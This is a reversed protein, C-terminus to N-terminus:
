FTKIPLSALQSVVSMKMELENIFIILSPLIFSFHLFYLLNHM